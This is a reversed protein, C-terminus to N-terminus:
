ELQDKIDIEVKSGGRITINIGLFSHERGIGTVIDGFHGRIINLINTVMNPEVHSLKNDVIYWVLTFQKGDVKIFLLKEAM